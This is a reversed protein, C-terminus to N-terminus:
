KKNFDGAYIFSFKDLSIYKRFAANVQQVNLAKVKAELTDFEELPTGDYLSNNIFSTLFGDYGLATNRGSQWSGTSTKLEEATFGNTLAKNLEDQISENVKDVMTPNFFAYLGLRSVDNDRAVTLYSGAGYSIGEKERLRTPIRSTMFGGSGLMENAMMFAPYDPDDSKMKFTAIGCVAANEKDPTIVKENIKTSAYFRPMVKEYKTKSTWNGFTNSIVLNIDTVNLDGIVTGIGNNAGLYSQYFDVLQKRKITNLSALAEDPSATYFIHDKPYDTTKRVVQTFVVSQPDNKSSEITTKQETIAKTLENEPFTSDTLLQKLLDFTPQLYEQYTTVNVYLSQGSFGFNINTKMQDLKDQIQEKTMTKTGAKLMAAMMTAIDSKGSLASLNAVPFRFSAIVKKGKVPKKLIAFKFGNGLTNETLNKKINPISAEFTATEVEEKKGKYDQTLKAIEADSIEASKVREQDKEPIFVGLTRNNPMFYKKAVRNIDELSLKEIADRYLFFLRYDGSGIIETLAISLGITNNKTADISKLIKSKARLVDQDTYKRTGIKDLESLFIKKAEDLNKDKPVNVNFYIYSADRVQPQYAYLGSAKQTEVLAKYLYGSPDSTLIESLADIVPYDKDAYSATHYAAGIIQLDGSRKLEVFREGDQAPEVTYTKELIRKPKPIKSFYKGIYELAKKEEFKGGIVLTANDPQYYKEYFVRLRDAKVREIDEKSGITSHGYNHWLYATSVIREMLVSEPSNEGIEFENRVVSFEKDLDSQLITSHIMRDAEMELSWRLNEDSSPFIEYYNTRDLWTTGNANGGKDSLMKKIDGLNKTSKFLMHELLHAMGSEGYGEHRSGVHYVINVIMNSQSADPILLVKLGNNLAYEKVGEVATIYKPIEANSSKKKQAQTMLGFSLFVISLIVKKM